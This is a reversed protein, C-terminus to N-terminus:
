NRRKDVAAMGFLFGTASDLGSSHGYTELLSLFSMWSAPDKSFSRGMQL